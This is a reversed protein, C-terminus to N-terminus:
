VRVRHSKKPVTSQTVEIQRVADICHNFDDIPKALRNGQRDKQWTYNRLEKIMNVSRATVYFPDFSQMLQIGYNISDAGKTSPQIMIGYNRLEQISKPEASDAIVNRRFDQKLINAIQSNVLGKKYLIEDYIPQSNWRYKDVGATPDNSYGWDLGTINYSAENPLNDIIKWNNFVVGELNGIEGDIYVRCWNAWYDSTKAKEVRLMLEQLITAPLAENDLYKLIIFDCDERGVFEEHVWFKNTPNFDIWINGSTRMMLANAIEFSIYPAENIFIDTRKGAAQAKGVSDYSDFRIVSGNSFRYKRETANYSSEIWRNTVMMIEKFDKLAGNKLAPITEAVVTIDRGKNKILFDILVAIIGYTKGAWTGGQIVKIRKTLSRLKKIATTYTFM